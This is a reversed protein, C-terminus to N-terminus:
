SFLAEIESQTAGVWALEDLRTKVSKKIVGPVDVVYLGAAVKDAFNEASVTDDIQYVDGVLVYYIEDEDFVATNDLQEYTTPTANQYISKEASIEGVSATMNNNADIALIVETGQNNTTVVDVLSGVPIWLVDHDDNAIVLKLYKGADAATATAGEGLIDETVDKGAVEVYESATGDWTYLKNEYEGVTAVKYVKGDAAPTIPTGGDTLSLWDNAFPTSGVVYATTYDTPDYLKGDAYLIDVVSGSEVSSAEPITVSFDAEDTGLVANPKKYFKISNDSSSWRVTKLGLTNASDIYTKLNQDYTQLNSLSILKNSM